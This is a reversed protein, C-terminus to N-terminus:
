SPSTDTGYKDVNKQQYYDYETWAANKANSINQIDLSLTATRRKKNIKWYLRTDVRFYPKKRYDSVEAVAFNEGGHAIVQLNAGLARTKTRKQKLWEKGALGSFVYGYDFPSKTWHIISSGVPQPVGVEAKFLSLTNKWYFGNKWDQSCSLAGGMSRGRGTYDGGAVFLYDASLYNIEDIVVPAKRNFNGFLTATLITKDSLQVEYQGTIALTRVMKSRELLSDSFGLFVQSIPTHGVLGVFGSFRHKQSARYGWQLRPEAM